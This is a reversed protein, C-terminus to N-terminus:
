DNSIRSTYVENILADVDAKTKVVYVKINCTKLVKSAFVQQLKTLSLGESKVEVLAIFSTPFLCIQDTVGRVSSSAWKFSLGGLDKMRHALYKETVKESERSKSKAGLVQHLSKVSNM